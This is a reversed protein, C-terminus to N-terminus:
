LGKSGNRWCDEFGSSGMGSRVDETRELRIEWASTDGLLLAFLCDEWCM